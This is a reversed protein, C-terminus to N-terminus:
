MRRRSFTGACVEAVMEGSLGLVAAMAGVGLPVAEQMFEGRQRVTRVADELGIGGGVVLASYEGLSHGAVYDPEPAGAAKFAHHAAVSMTLIAPQTNATLALQEETGEFCIGSISDGLAKNAREFVNKADGSNDYFDKGMGPHQSGQGPFIYALKGM